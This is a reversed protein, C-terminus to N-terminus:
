VNMLVNKQDNRSLDKVELVNGIKHLFDHVSCCITLGRTENNKQPFIWRNATCIDTCLPPQTAFSDFANNSVVFVIGQKRQGETDMVVKFIWKPVKINGLTIKANNITLTEFGGSIVTFTRNLKIALDAVKDEVAGYNGNNIEQWHPAVNIFYNTARKFTKFIGDAFRSLHGRAFYKTGTNTQFPYGTAMSNVQQTNVLYFKGIKRNMAQTSFHSPRTGGKGHHKDLTTGYLKHKSYMVTEDDQRYCVEYLEVFSEDKLWFGVEYYDATSDHMCNTIHSVSGTIHHRQASIENKQQCKFEAPILGNM